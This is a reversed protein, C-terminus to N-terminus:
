LQYTQDNGVADGGILFFTEAAIPLFLFIATEPSQLLTQPLCEGVLIQGRSFSHSVFNPVM